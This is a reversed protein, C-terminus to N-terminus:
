PNQNGFYDFIKTVFIRNMRRTSSVIKRALTVEELLFLAFIFSMRFFFFSHAVILKGWVLPSFLFLSFLQRRKKKKKGLGKGDENTGKRGKKHRLPKKKRRPPLPDLHGWFADGPHRELGGRGARVM